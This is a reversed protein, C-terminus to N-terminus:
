KSLDKEGGLAPYLYWREHMRGRPMVEEKKWVRSNEKYM